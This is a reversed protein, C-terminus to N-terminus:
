VTLEGARLRALTADAPVGAFAAATACRRHEWSALWARQDDLSAFRTGHLRGRQTAREVHLLNAVIRLLARERQADPADLRRAWWYPEDRHDHSLWARLLAIRRDIRRLLTTADLPTAAAVAASDM